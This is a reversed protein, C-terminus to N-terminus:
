IRQLSCHNVHQLMLIVHLLTSPLIILALLKLGLYSAPQDGHILKLCLSLAEFLTPHRGLADLADFM